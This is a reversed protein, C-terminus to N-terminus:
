SPPSGAFPRTPKLFPRSRPSLYAPGPTMRRRFASSDPPLLLSGGRITRLDQTDFVFSDMNVGEVRLLYARM